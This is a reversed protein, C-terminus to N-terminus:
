HKLSSILVGRVNACPDCTTNPFFLTGPNSVANCGMQANDGLIAGMKKLGTEIKKNEFRIRIPQHDFRLNACKAGAGLNVGNGLISDGVYNFHAASARSLFISHKVETTHGIICNEGTLVYERLYAGSRVVTGDGLWCPGQIYAGREIRVGKGLFITKPNEFFVGEINPSNNQKSILSDLYGKLSLLAEWVYKKGEFLAKHPFSRLDFFDKPHLNM